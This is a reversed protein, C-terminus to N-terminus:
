VELENFKILAKGQQIWLAELFWEIQEFIYRWRKILNLLSSDLIYTVGADDEARMIRGYSQIMTVITSAAYHEPDLKNRASVQKNGLDGYPIKAIIQWRCLDYPLDVGETFSPSVLIDNSKSARFKKLVNDREKSNEHSLMRSKNVCNNVLYKSIKYNTTHIIGKENNHKVCLADVAAQLRKLELEPKDASKALNAAPIWIIPRNDPNFTSAVNIYKYKQIGLDKIIKRPLTGSMLVIKSAHDFVLPNSYKDVFVPKLIIANDNEEIVWTDDLYDFKKVIDLLSKLQVGRSILLENNFDQSLDALAESYLEELYPRAYNAWDILKNLDPDKPLYLNEGSFRRKSLRIEIFSHLSSELKHAEDIFLIGANSFTGSFNAEYLFYHINMSVIKSKAADDKANYYDCGHFKRIRCKFGASCPAEDCTRRDNRKGKSIEQDVLNCFFNSRGKIAQLGIPEYDQNYQDGLQKTQTIIIGQKEEILSNSVAVLSKGFGTSAQVALYKGNYDAIEQIIEKQKNRWQPHLGPVLISLRDDLNVSV